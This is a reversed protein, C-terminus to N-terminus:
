RQLKVASCRSLHEWCWWPNRQRRGKESMGELDVDCVGHSLTLLKKPFPFYLELLKKQGMTCLSTELPSPLLPHTTCCLLQFRCEEVHNTKTKGKNTMFDQARTVVGFMGAQVLAVSLKCLSPKWISPQRSPSCKLVGGPIPKSLLQLYDSPRMMVFSFLWLKFFMRAERRCMICIHTYVCICLKNYICIYFYM